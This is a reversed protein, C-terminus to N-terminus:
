HFPLHLKDLRTQPLASYEQQIDSLISNQALKIEAFKQESRTIDFTKAKESLLKEALKENDRKAFTLIQYAKEVQTATDKNPDDKQSLINIIKDSTNILLTLYAVQTEYYSKFVEPTTLKSLSNLTIDAQSKTDKYYNTIADKNGEHWLTEDTLVPLYFSPGSAYLVDKIYSQENYIEDLTKQSEEIYAIVHENITNFKLPATDAQYKLKQNELNGIVLEIKSLSKELDDLSVFFGSSAASSEKLTDVLQVKAGAVKFSSLIEDLSQQNAVLTSNVNELYRAQQRIPAEKKNEFYILSSSIGIIIAILIAFIVLIKSIVPLRANRELSELYHRYSQIM